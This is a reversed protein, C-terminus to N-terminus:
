PADRAVRLVGNELSHTLGTTALAVALADTPGLGKSSGRLIMGSADRALAADAYALTWGQERCLARLFGDLPQGDIELPPALAASWAWTPGHTPAPRSRIVGPEFVLETGPHAAAIESGRRIEVLGSRVRVRVAGDSLRVEFQTGIDHVTGLSTRVELPAGAGSDIYVAGETLELTRVDALRVRSGEDLRVSVDPGLRFAVRGGVGTSLTDGGRLVQSVTVPTLTGGADVGAAGDLREVTAVQAGSRRPTPVAVRFVVAVAAAAGLVGVATVVRRRRRARASTVADRVFAQRMRAARDPDVGPRVGALRVLRATVDDAEDGSPDTGSDLREIV